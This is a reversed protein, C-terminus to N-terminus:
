KLRTDYKLVVTDHVYPNKELYLLYSCGIISRIKDILSFISKTDITELENITKDIEYNAIIQRNATILRRNTEAIIFSFLYFAEQPTQELFKLFNTKAHIFVLETDELARIRVEKPTDSSM